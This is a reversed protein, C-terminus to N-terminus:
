IRLRPRPDTGSSVLLRVFELPLAAETAVVELSVGEDGALEVARRLLSPEEPRINGPEDKRWGRASLTKMANVYTTEPM